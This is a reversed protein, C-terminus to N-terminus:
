DLRSAASLFVVPGFSSHPVKIADTEGPSFADGSACHAASPSAQRRAAGMVSLLRAPPEAPKGSKKLNKKLACTEAVVKARYSM